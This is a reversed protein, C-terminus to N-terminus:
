DLIKWVIRSDPKQIERNDEDINRAHQFEDFSIIFPEPEKKESLDKLQDNVNMNSDQSIEGMDYRYYRNSFGLLEVLRNVLSSKGVGTMGWLNIVLPKEQMNPFLFWPGIWEFIKDIVRDIGVFESKLTQKAHDLVQQKQKLTSQLQAISEKM